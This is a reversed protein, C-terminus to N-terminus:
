MACGLLLGLEQSNVGIHLTVMLGGLCTSADNGMSIFQTQTQRNRKLRFAAHRYALGM